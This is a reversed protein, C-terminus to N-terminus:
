DPEDRAEFLCTLFARATGLGPDYRSPTWSFVEGFYDSVRMSRHEETLGVHSEVLSPARPASGDRSM